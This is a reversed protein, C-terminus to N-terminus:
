RSFIAPSFTGIAGSGSTGALGTLIATPAVAKPLVSPKGTSASSGHSNRTVSFAPVITSAPPSSGRVSLAPRPLRSRTKLPLGFPVQRATYSNRSPPQPTCQYRGDSAPM